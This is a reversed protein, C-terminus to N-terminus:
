YFEMRIRLSSATVLPIFTIALVLLAALLLLPTSLAMGAIAANVAASAFILLPLCLPFLIITLLFGSHPLSTTLASALAAWLVLTPTCLLMSVILILIAYSNLEYLLAIVPTAAILPVIILLWHAFVKVSVIWSLPLPCILLQELTGDQDDYQFLSPMSILVALLVSVLIAGAALQHLFTPHTHTSLPFLSSVIVFFLLPNVWESPKRKKLLCERRLLIGLHKEISM